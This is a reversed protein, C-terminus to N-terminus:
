GASGPAKLLQAFAAANTPGFAGLDILRRDTPDELTLRGDAWATLRFPVDRDLSARKRQSALGRLTARLFGNTGPQVVEVTHGDEADFVDVGGDARDQFRLDLLAIPATRDTSDAVGTVRGVLAVTITIAIAAGAAVLPLLPFPRDAVDHSM